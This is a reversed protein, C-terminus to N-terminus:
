EKMLRRVFGALRQCNPITGPKPTARWLLQSVKAASRMALRKGETAAPWSTIFPELFSSGFAEHWQRCDIESQKEEFLLMGNARLSGWPPTMLSSNLIGKGAITHPGYVPYRGELYGSSAGLTVIEPKSRLISNEQSASRIVFCNRESPSQCTV